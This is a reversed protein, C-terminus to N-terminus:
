KNYKSKGAIIKKNKIEVDYLSFFRDKIQNILDIDSYNVKNVVTYVGKVEVGMKNLLDMIAKITGGTSLICDVIAIKRIKKTDFYFFLNRKHYGTKQTLHFFNEMKYNFSRAVILPKNLIMAVPLATFIGDTEVSFIADVDKPIKLSIVGALYKLEKDDIPTLGKYPYVFYKYGNETKYVPMIELKKKVAEFGNYIEKM